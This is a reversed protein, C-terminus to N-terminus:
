RKINKEHYKKLFFPELLMGAAAVSFVSIVMSSVLLVCNDTYHFICFGVIALIYLIIILAKM